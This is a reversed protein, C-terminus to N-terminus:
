AAKFLKDTVLLLLHRSAPLFSLIVKLLLSIFKYADINLHEFVLYTLTKNEFLNSADLKGHM